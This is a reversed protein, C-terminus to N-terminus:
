VKRNISKLKKNREYRILDSKSFSNNLDPYKNINWWESGDYEGRDMWVGDECYIIGYLVQGGYGNDYKRDLFKLLENYEDNTHLPKLKVQTDSDEIFYIDVGIVKYNKTIDLFEGKANIIGM